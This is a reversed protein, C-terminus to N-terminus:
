ARGARLEERLVKLALAGVAGFATLAALGIKTVDFVPKVSVGDPGIIITAVPRGISGGGGGGGGGGGTPVPESSADTESAAKSRPGGAPGFGMGSGFGGGASVEAAAIVTYEGSSVPPSYVRSQDAAALVREMTQSTKESEQSMTRTLEDLKGNM